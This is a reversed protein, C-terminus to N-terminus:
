LRVCSGAPGDSISRQHSSSWGGSTEEPTEWPQSSHKPPVRSRRAAAPGADGELGVGRGQKGSM